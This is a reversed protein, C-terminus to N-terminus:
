EKYRYYRKRKIVKSEVWDENWKERLTMSVSPKPSKYHTECNELIDEISLWKDNNRRYELTLYKKIGRMTIKYTSESLGGKVGGIQDEHYDKIYKRVKNRKWKPLRNLRAHVKESVHGYESVYLLGIGKSKLLDLAVYEHSKKPKPVAIYVYSALGTRHLAQQIVKFNLSTKMEVAIDLIGCTGLVDIDIVEGYVKECGKVEELYKKIPLYLDSEKM